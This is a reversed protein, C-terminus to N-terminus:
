ADAAVAGNTNAPAHEAIWDPVLPWIEAQATKSIVIGPHSFDESYGTATGASIFTKDQSAFHQIFRECGRGPDVNDGAGSIALIPQTLRTLSDRLASDRRGRAVWDTADQVAALPENEPGLGAAQAPLHGYLRAMTRTLLNGPWDLMHKKVEFQTAFLLWGGIRSMDLTEAGARAAMIGGFSHGGWIAPTDHQQSVLSQVAPLDHQVHETMGARADSHPSDSLGRRQAIYTPHGQLALYAALGVRKDSLWFRRGTFMGPLLVVPTLSPQAPNRVSTLACTGGDAAQVTQSEIILEQNRSQPGPDTM